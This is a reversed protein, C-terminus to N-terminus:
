NIFKWNPVLYLYGRSYSGDIYDAEFDNCGNKLKTVVAEKNADLDYILAGVKLKSRISNLKVEQEELEAVRAKLKPLDYYLSDM